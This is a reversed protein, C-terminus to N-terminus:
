RFARIVRSAHPILVGLADKAGPTGTNVIMVSPLSSVVASLGAAFMAKEESYPLLRYDPLGKGQQVEQNLQTVVPTIWDEFLSFEADDGVDKVPM